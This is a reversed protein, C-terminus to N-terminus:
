RERGAQRQEGRQRHHGGAHDRLPAALHRRGVVVLFRERASAAAREEAAPGLTEDTRRIPRPPRVWCLPPISDAANSTGPTVQFRTDSLSIPTRRSVTATNRPIGASAVTTGATITPEAIHSSGATSTSSTAQAHHSIGRWTRAM